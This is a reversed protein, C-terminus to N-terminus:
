FLTQTCGWFLWLPATHLMCAACTPIPVMHMGPGQVCPQDLMWWRPWSHSWPATSPAPHPARCALDSGHTMDKVGRGQLIFILSKSSPCLWDDKSLRICISQFDNTTRQEMYLTLHTQRSSIGTCMREMKNTIHVKRNIETCCWTMSAVKARRLFTKFIWYSFKSDTM